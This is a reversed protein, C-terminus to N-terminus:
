TLLLGVGAYISLTLTVIELILHNGRFGTVIQWASYYDSIAFLHWGFSGLSMYAIYSTACLTCVGLTKSISKFIGIRSLGFFFAIIGLVTTGLIVTRWATDHTDSLLEHWKADCDINKNYQRQGKSSEYMKFLNQLHNLAHVGLQGTVNVLRDKSHDLRYATLKGPMNVMSSACEYSWSFSEIILIEPIGDNDIDVIGIPAPFTLSTLEGSKKTYVVYSCSVRGAAGYGIRVLNATDKTSNATRFTTVQFSDHSPMRKIVDLSGTNVALAIMTNDDICPDDAYALEPKSLAFLALSILIYKM